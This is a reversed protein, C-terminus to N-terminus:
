AHAPRSVSRIGDAEIVVAAPHRSARRQVMRASALVQRGLTFDPRGPPEIQLAHQMWFHGAGHAVWAQLVHDEGGSGGDSVDVRYYVTGLPDLERQRWDGDPTGKRLEIRLRPPTRMERHRAPLLTFGADTAEVSFQAPATVVL